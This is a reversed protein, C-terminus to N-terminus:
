NGAKKDNTELAQAIRDINDLWDAALPDLPIVKAGVADAIKHAASVPFQAQVFIAAPRDRKAEDILKTLAKATPEKGGTEVAEQKIGFEDFFYGFSPHFVFVTTGALPVLKEKMSDFERDIDAVLSLYNSEYQEKGDPDLAALTDRIHGALIKAPERGLWTHRDINMGHGDPAADTDKEAHDGDEGEHSHAELKRFSVGETGDVIRLGPFQARMKPELAIEFDIGSLIWASASGLEAMQKPTPEYSHPNQNVGVLVFSNVRNGGIRDLFYQQPLISVAITLGQTKKAVTRSCGPLTIAIAVTLIAAALMVSGATRSTRAAADHFFNFM